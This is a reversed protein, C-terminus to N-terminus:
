GPTGSCNPYWGCPDTSQDGEGTPCNDEDYYIIYGCYYQSPYCNGAGDICEGLVKWSNCKWSGLSPTNVCDSCNGYGHCVKDPQGGSINGAIQNHLSTAGLNLLYLGTLGVLGVVLTRLTM